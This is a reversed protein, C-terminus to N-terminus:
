RWISSVSRARTEPARRRGANSKLIKALPLLPGMSPKRILDGGPHQRHILALGGGTHGPKSSLAQCFYVPLQQSACFEGEVKQAKRHSGDLM